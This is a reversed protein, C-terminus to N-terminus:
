KTLKRLVQRTFVRRQNIPFEILKQSSKKLREFSSKYLNVTEPDEVILVNERNKTQASWTCNYSGSVLLKRNQFNDSFIFFKNHMIGDTERGFVYVPIGADVLTKIKSYKAGLGTISSFDSVFEVEVGRGQAGVIHKALLPDTFFYMAIRIRRKESDILNILTERINNEPSFMASVNQNPRFISDLSESLVSLHLAFFILLKLKM